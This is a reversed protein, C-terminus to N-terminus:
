RSRSLPRKRWFPQTASHSCTDPHTKNLVWAEEWQCPSSNLRYIFEVSILRVKNFLLCNRQIMLTLFLSTTRLGVTARDLNDFGAPIAIETMLRVCEIFHVVYVGTSLCLWGVPYEHTQWGTATNQARVITTETTNTIMTTFSPLNRCALYCWLRWSAPSSSIRTFVTNSRIHGWKCVGFSVVLRTM